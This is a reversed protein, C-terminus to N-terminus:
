GNLLDLGEVDLDRHKKYMAVVIGLAVAMECAAIAIVFISFVIGATPDPSKFHAFSIFSIIGANLMLEVSMLIAIINRRTLVGFVGLCFSFAALILCNALTM